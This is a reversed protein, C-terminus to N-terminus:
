DGNAEEGIGVARIVIKFTHCGEEAAARAIVARRDTPGRDGGAGSADGRNEERLREEFFEGAFAQDGVGPRVPASMPAPRTVPAALTLKAARPFFKTVGRRTEGTRAITAPARM